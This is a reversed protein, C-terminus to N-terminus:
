RCQKGNRGLIGYESRMIEAIDSWKKHGRQYYLLKLIKDEQMFAISVMKTWSKRECMYIDFFNYLKNVANM